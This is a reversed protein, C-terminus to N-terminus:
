ATNPGSFSLAHLKHGAGQSLKFVAVAGVMQQAQHKLSEAAAASQEVLAANQQVAQDMQTIAEGVQGVGASQEISAATIEGMIDTVRKIAGVVEAMTHGARDVLASGHEVREVSANILVKIEKAAEASRQALNRVESAVVAFGRGQDGARAAEVAANLALINTQFAIGDIVSIIDAIKRSSDNIGKMTAVVQGVEEGGQAAVGSATLAMQNGQRANDANQKVTASLEEMSAATQELASAQQETRASLDSNGQAIEASATAVGEANQRVDAVIGALRKRMDDLAQLLVATENQGGTDIHIALDGAAVARAVVVAQNLPRTTSRIIWWAMLAAVVFAVTSLSLIAAQTGRVSVTVEEAATKMLSEQYVVLKDVAAMYAVQRPRLENLLVPKAEDLKGDKLLTILKDRPARYAGRAAMVEALVAKGEDTTITAKLKDVNASTRKGSADLIAFQEQVDKAESMVFLNRLAQAVENNVAKIDNAILIKAYRDDMVESFQTSIDDVKAYAMAGLLAMLAAMAAFGLTLRTSIKLDRLTM